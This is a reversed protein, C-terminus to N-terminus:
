WTLSLETLEIRRGGRIVEHPPATRDLVLVALRLVDYGDRSHGRWFGRIRDLLAVRV